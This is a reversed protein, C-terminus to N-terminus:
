PYEVFRLFVLFTGVVLCLHRQTTGLFTLDEWARWSLALVGWGLFALHESHCRSIADCQQKCESDFQQKLETSRKFWIESISRAINKMTKQRGASPFTVQYNMFKRSSRGAFPNELTIDLNQSRTKGRANSDVIGNNLKELFIYVKTFHPNTDMKSCYGYGCSFSIKYIPDFPFICEFTCKQDLAIKESFEKFCSLVQKMSMVGRSLIYERVDTQVFRTIETFRQKWLCDEKIFGQWATNVQYCQALDRPSLYNFILLNCDAHISNLPLRKVTM